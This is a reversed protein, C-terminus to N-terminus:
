DESQQGPKKNFEPSAYRKRLYERCQDFFELFDNRKYDPYTWRSNQWQNGQYFLTVEALIGERLYIRHDRDKTTALVLKAETIYGPDLNIPREEAWAESGAFENEWDNSQLKSEVIQDQPILNAFALLQKQLGEGMTKTYYGTESFDFQESQIAIPGWCESAKAIAWSFASAHRSSVAMVRLVPRYDRVDGM